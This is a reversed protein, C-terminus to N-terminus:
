GGRQTVGQAASRPPSVLAIPVTGLDGKKARKDVPNAKKELSNAQADFFVWNKKLQFRVNATGDLSKKAPKEALM